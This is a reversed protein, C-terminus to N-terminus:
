LNLKILAQQAAKQEAEKKSRGEGEGYVEDQLTIRGAFKNENEDTTIEYTEFSVDIKKKQSWEILRSKYDSDDLLLKDFNIYKNIIRNIIFKKAKKYGKDIYIAGILAELGNGFIHRYNNGNGKYAIINDIGLDIALQDLFERNVIRSRIKTLMGENFHNYRNFLYDAIVASLIADGLYELRENHIYLGDEQVFASKHALATKYLKHNDPSFGLIHKISKIFIKKSRSAFLIKLRV